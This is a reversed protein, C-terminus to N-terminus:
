QFTQLYFTITDGDSIYMDKAGKPALEDNVDYMWYTNKEPTQRVDDIATILGDKEEIKHYDELIDMVSDDKKFSVTEEVVKDDSFTVKLTATYTQETKSATQPQCAVLFLGAIAALISFIWKKM